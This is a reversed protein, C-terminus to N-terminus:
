PTVLVEQGDFLAIDGIRSLTIEGDIAQLFIVHQLSWLVLIRFSTDETETTIAKDLGIELFVEDKRDEM